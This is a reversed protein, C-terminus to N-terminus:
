EDPACGRSVVIIGEGMEEVRCVRAYLPDLWIACDAASVKERASQADVARVVVADLNLFYKWEGPWTDPNLFAGDANEEAAVGDRGPLSLHWSTLNDPETM